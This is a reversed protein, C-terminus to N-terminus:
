KVAECRMDRRAIHFVPEKFEIERFGIGSLLETLEGITYGWQHLMGPKPDRPDGYLGLVTLRQNKEGDVIMKAIKDLCPMELVIKGKPKLVRYWEYLAPGADRRHLHELVHHAQIESAYNSEFPLEKIDCNV